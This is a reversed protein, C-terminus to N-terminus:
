VTRKGLAIIDHTFGGDGEESKLNAWEDSEVVNWLISYYMGMQKIENKLDTQFIVNTWVDNGHKELHLNWYKGSGKYTYPDQKTYGLYKMGTNTHTKVYLKYIYM